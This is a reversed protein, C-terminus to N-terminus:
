RAAIARFCLPDGARSRTVTIGGFLASRSRCGGAGAGIRGRRRRAKASRVHAGAGAGDSPHQGHHAIVRQVRQGRGATGSVIRQGLAEVKGSGRGLLDDRSSRARAARLVTAREIIRAPSVVVGVVGATIRRLTMSLGAQYVAYV